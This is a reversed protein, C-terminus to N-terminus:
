VEIWARERDGVRATEHLHQRGDTLFDRARQLKRRPRWREEVVGVGIELEPGGMERRKHLLVARQRAHESSVVCAGTPHLTPRRLPSHVIRLQEYFPYREDLRSVIDSEHLAIGGNVRRQILPKCD